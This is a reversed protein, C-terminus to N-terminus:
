MCFGIYRGPAFPNRRNERESFLAFCCSLTTHVMLGSRKTELTGLREGDTFVQRRIPINKGFGEKFGTCTKQFRADPLPIVGEGHDGTVGLLRDGADTVKEIRADPVMALQLPRAQLREALMMVEPRSAVIEDDHVFAARGLGARGEFFQVPHVIAPVALYLGAIM